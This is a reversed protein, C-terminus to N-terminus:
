VVPRAAAENVLVVRAGCTTLSRWISSSSSRSNVSYGWYSIATMNSSSLFGVLPLSRRLDLAYAVIMVFKPPRLTSSCPSRAGLVTYLKIWSAFCPLYSLTMKWRKIGPKM